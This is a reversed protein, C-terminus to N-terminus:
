GWLNNIIQPLFEMHSTLRWTDGERLCGCHHWELRNCLFRVFLTRASIRMGARHDLQWFISLYVRPGGHSLFFPIGSSTSSLLGLPLKQLVVVLHSSVAKLIEPFHPIQLCEFVPVSPVELAQQARNMKSHDSKKGYSSEGDGGTSVYELLRGGSHGKYEKKCSM